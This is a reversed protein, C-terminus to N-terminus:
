KSNSDCSVYSTYESGFHLEKFALDQPIQLFCQVKFPQDTSSKSSIKYNGFSFSM